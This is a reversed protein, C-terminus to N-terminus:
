MEEPASVGLLALGNALVQRTAAVLALRATRLAADDVLFTHANYYTHLDNALERLYHALQHPELDAAASDIVDPYRSLTRLLALEHSESLQAAAVATKGPNFEMGRAAAQRLVSCIRAHAYQIYYVPNDSSQSKALDLDFDLHQECRRLVYFYRAADNGVESRLERLTIFEGSRTSMQMKRGGRYLTVFQMLLADFDDPNEGLAELAGKVRAVYGHHDAGWLDIVREFGREFKEMHYAIDSAFYTPQGNERFIVRDKEDGFESARFWVAGDKDYAHGAARLRATARDIAGSTVLSRESYWRDFTVGFEELDECIEALQSDLTFRHVAEFATTGLLERARGILADIYAEKDGGQGEDAPLEGVVAGAEQKYTDGDRALLAEGFARVYDGQYGNAPFPLSEACAELYRLWVSTALINMQRGADNVYYERQLNFGVAVLLNAVAAGYAAHRGHGVHLPGTPNASVFEVQVPRNEGRESRGFEEGAALIKDVLTARSAEAITFNIFGPGAIQVEAIEPSAPLRSVILAAIERPNKRAERALGMAVPSAYDGHSGDRSREVPIEPVASLSLEGTDVLSELAQKLLSQLTEKM